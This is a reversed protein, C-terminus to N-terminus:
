RRGRSAAGRSASASAAAGNQYGGMAGGRIPASSRAEPPPAAERPAAARAPEVRAPESRVPEARAPETRVPESRVPESHVPEPRAPAPAAARSERGRDSAREVDPGRPSEAPQNERGAPPPYGREPRADNLRAVPRNTAHPLPRGPDRTWHDAPFNIVHGGGDKFRGPQYLGPRDQLYHSPPGGHDWDREHWWPRDHGWNGHYIGHDYWDLDFDLWDGVDVPPGFTIYAPFTQGVTYPPPDYVVNSDYIPACLVDPNTPIIQIYGDQNIVTQQPTNALTGAALAEGRLTQVASMVDPQQNIFADGLDNMWEANSALYHLVAPYRAVGKVSSDWPQSDANPPSNGADEWKAAEIVDDPYTTSALVQALLADPYLAIPAVLHQLDDADLPTEDALLSRMTPLLLLVAIAVLASLFLRRSHRDIRMAKPILIKVRISHAFQRTAGVDVGISM